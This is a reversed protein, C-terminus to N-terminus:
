STFSGSPNARKGRFKPPSVMPVAETLILKNNEFSIGLVVGTIRRVHAGDLTKRLEPNRRLDKKLEDNLLIDAEIQQIEEEKRLMLADDEKEVEIGRQAAFALWFDPIRIDTKKISLSNHNIESMRQPVVSTPSLIEKDSIDKTMRGVTREDESDCSTDARSTKGSESDTATGEEIMSEDSLKPQDFSAFVYSGSSSRHRSDIDTGENMSHAPLSFVSGTLLTSLLIRTFKHM